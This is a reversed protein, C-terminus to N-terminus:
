SENSSITNPSQAAVYKEFPTPESYRELHDRETYLDTLAQEVDSVGDDFMACIRFFDCDWDCTSAPNPYCVTHHSEGDELRSHSMMIDNAVAVVHTWHSRLEHMNHYVPERGYFPPKATASRKVKRLMNYFVGGARKEAAEEDGVEEKLSLFEVLHETLLQSDIQLRASAVGLSQVTKHELSFRVGDNEREVRADIKSLLSVPVPDTKLADNPHVWKFLDVEMIAEPAVVRLDMDNGTEELWQLYGEVMIEALEADKRIADEYTPHEEIDAQAVGRIYSVADFDEVRPDYILSLADHVRTGLGTPRGFDLHQPRLGRYVGLYWKRRCRRFTSMESNSLRLKEIM